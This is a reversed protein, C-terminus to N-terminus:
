IQQKVGLIIHLDHLFYQIQIIHTHCYLYWGCTIYSSSNIDFDISVVGVMIIKDQTTKLIKIKWKHELSKELENECITGMWNNDKGTKTLINDM